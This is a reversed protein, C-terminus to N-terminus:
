IRGLRKSINAACEIVLSGIDDDRDPTFVDDTGTISVAAIIKHRYDYIPAAICRIGEEHECDDIFYGKQTSAHIQKKLEESNTITLETHKVYKIGSLCNDLSEENMGSVLAKGLASCFIDIRKGIQSYIRLSNVNDVKDIYVVDPLDLIGLHVPQGLRQALSALFPRAETKIEIDNLRSSGIQIFSLGIKYKGGSLSKELYGRSLLASAIRHVTSKNLSLINSIETIGLGESYASIVEIIDLTRDIVQVGKEAM